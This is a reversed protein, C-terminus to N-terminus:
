VLHRAVGAFLVALGSIVLAGVGIVAFHLLIFVPANLEDRPM